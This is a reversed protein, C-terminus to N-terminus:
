GLLEDVFERVAKVTDATVPLLEAVEEDTHGDCIYDWVVAVPLRAELLYFTEGIPEFGVVDEYRHYVDLVHTELSM